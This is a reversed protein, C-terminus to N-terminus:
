KTEGYAYDHVVQKLADALQNAGSLSFLFSNTVERRDYGGPKSLDPHDTPCVLDIQFSSLHPSEPPGLVTAGSVQLLAAGIPILEDTTPLPFEM